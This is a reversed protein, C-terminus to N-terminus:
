VWNQVCSSDLLYQQLAAEVDPHSGNEKCGRTLQLAATQCLAAGHFISCDRIDAVTCTQAVGLAVPQTCLTPLMLYLQSNAATDTSVM